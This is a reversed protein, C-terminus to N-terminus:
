LIFDSFLCFPLKGIFSMSKGDSYDARKRMLGDATQPEQYHSIAIILDHCADPGTLTSDYDRTDWM